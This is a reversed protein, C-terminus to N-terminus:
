DEAYDEDEADNWGNEWQESAYSKAEYPNDRISRGLGYDRYGYDYPTM